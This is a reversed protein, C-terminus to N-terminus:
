NNNGAYQYWFTGTAAYHGAIIYTNWTPFNGDMTVYWGDLDARRTGRTYYTNYSSIYQTCTPRIKFDKTVTSGAAGTTATSTAPACVTHGSPATVTVSYNSNPNLGTFQAISSSNTTRTQGNVVVSSGSRNQSATATCSPTNNGSAPPIRRVRVNLAAVPPATVVVTVSRNVSGGPGTCTLTFTRNGTTLTGSSTSGATAKAGSWSGSATCSTANTTSWTLTSSNGSVISTPSATFSITPAPPAPT